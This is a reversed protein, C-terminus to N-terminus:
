QRQQNEKDKILLNRKRIKWSTKTTSSKEHSHQSYAQALERLAGDYREKQVPSFRGDQFKKEAKLQNNLSSVLNDIDNKEIEPNRQPYYKKECAVETLAELNRLSEEIYYEVPKHGGFPLFNFAFSVELAHIRSHGMKRLDAYVGMNKVGEVTIQLM